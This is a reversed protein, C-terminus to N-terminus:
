PKKWNLSGVDYGKAKLKGLNTVNTAIREIATQLVKLYVQKLDTWWTKLEPLEDRIKTVRQKVTGESEPIQDFRYLGHNYTQRVIDRTWDLSEEQSDTEPFLPYRLGYKM